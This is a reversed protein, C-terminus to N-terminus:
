TALRLRAWPGSGFRRSHSTSSGISSRWYILMEEPQLGVTGDRVAQFEEAADAQQEADEDTPGATIAETAARGAPDPQKDCRPPNGATGGAQSELAPQNRAHPSRREFIILGLASLLVLWTTLRLLERGRLM